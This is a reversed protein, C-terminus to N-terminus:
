RKFFNITAGLVQKVNPPLEEEEFPHSVGFTHTGGDIELYEVKENWKKIQRGETISVAEDATGHIVLLPQILNVCANM